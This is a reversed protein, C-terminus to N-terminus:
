RGTGYYFGGISDCVRIGGAAEREAIYAIFRDFASKTILLNSGTLDDGSGSDGLTTIGHWFPFGTDGYAELVDVFRRLKTFTQWGAVSGGSARAGNAFSVGGGTASGMDIAGVHHPNDVGWPSVTVNFKRAHRQLLIGRNQIVADSLRSSSSQPSAYFQNGRIVGMASYMAQVASIEYDIEAASTLAGNSLHNTSHNIAEWGADYMRTLNNPRIASGGSWNSVLKSGSTYIRAPTAVYGIWGREQFRPLGHEILDSGAADCGLVIQALHDWGTWISDFYLTAGGLNQTFLRIGTIAADKINAASGNGYCGAVIGFPHYEITPSSTQYALPDRMVFKLFNWGERLQNSNFGCLFANGYIAANTTIEVGINGTVSGGPAYGPQADLYVALMFKGGLATQLINTGPSNLLVNTSTNNNCVVKLMEAQGTRSRIGNVVGNADFGTYGQTVTHNTVGDSSSWVGAGFGVVMSGASRVPRTIGLPQDGMLGISPVRFNGADSVSAQSKAQTVGDSANDQVHLYKTGASFNVKSGANSSDEVLTRELINGTKWTGIGSEWEGEPLGTPGVGHIYYRATDNNSCRSYLGKGGKGPGQLLFSGTGTTFTVEELNAATILAM